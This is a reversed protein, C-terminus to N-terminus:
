NTLQRAPVAEVSRPDDVDTAPGAVERLGEAVGARAVAADVGIDALQGGATSRVRGRRDPGRAQRQGERGSADVDRVRAIDELM